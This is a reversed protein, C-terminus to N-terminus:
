RTLRSPGDAALRYVHDSIPHSSAAAMAQAQQELRSLDQGEERALWLVDREPMAVLLQQDLPLLLVRAADYGDGTQLLVPAGASPVPLVASGARRRLNSTALHHVDEVGRHWRKLHGRCVFTMSRPDDIVYVIALDEGFPMSVLAADGFLGKAAVWDRSRVQPMLDQAVAGFEHDELRDLGIDDIEALLQEVTKPFAAPFAQCRRHIEHLSMPTEQGRVRLLCAFQGPLLGLFQVDEYRALEKSFREVFRVVDPTPGPPRRRLRHLVAALLVAAGCWIGVIWDWMCPSYRCVCFGRELEGRRM